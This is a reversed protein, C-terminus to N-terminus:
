AEGDPRHRHLARPCPTGARALLVRMREGLRPVDDAPRDFLLRVDEHSRLRELRLTLAHRDVALPRVRIAGHLRRADVLRTLREVADGHCDALHTLLGAEATALPDPTARTFADPDVPEMDSGQRLVVRTPRLLLGGAEGASLRGSLWLRARIRDRMPVPAPDAFEVVCPVDRGLSGGTTGTPSGDPSALLLLRGDETVTHAGTLEERRRGEATVACSWATALLSRAREAATNAVAGTRSDGM